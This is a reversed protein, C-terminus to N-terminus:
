SKGLVANAEEHLKAVFADLQKEAEDKALGTREQLKGLFVDKKGELLMLDDDTLKAWQQKFKGGVQKLDGKFQTWNMDHEQRQIRLNADVSWQAANAGAASLSDNRHAPDPRPGAAGDLQHAAGDRQLREGVDLLLLESAENPTLSLVREGVLTAGDGSCLQHEGGLTLKGQVLHLWGRRGAALAHALHRGPALLASYVLADQNLRLSGDRGDPSAILCLGGRRQAASFRRQERDPRAGQAPPRLWLQFAHAGMTRSANTETHRLGRSVTMRQFEGAQLMGARGLSDEWALAGEHVYTILEADRDPQRSFGAGPPLWDETFGEEAELATWLEQKRRPDAHRPQSRRLQIM